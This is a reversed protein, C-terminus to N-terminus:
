EQPRLWRFCGSLSCLDVDDVGELYALWSGARTCRGGENVQFCKLCSVEGGLTGM